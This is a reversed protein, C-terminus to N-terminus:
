PGVRLADAIADRLDAEVFRQKALFGRVGLAEARRRTRDDTRDSLVLVPLDALAAEQRLRAIMSLGDLNPMEIDTLVLDPRDRLAIEAGERGDEALSVRFGMADLMGGLLARAVQSDEAVLVHRRRRKAPAALPARATRDFLRDRLALVDLVLLVGGDPTPAVARVLPADFVLEGAPHAAIPRPSEYGEVTVAFAGAPHDIILAADGVAPERGRLGILSALSVVRLVQEDAGEEDVVIRVFAGESEHTLERIRLISPVSRAPLALKRGGAVVPMAAEVRLTAPMVLVFRTGRGPASEVSVRGGVVAVESAVVDLGVGRGSIETTQDRTTMGHEFLTAFLQQESMETPDRGAAALKARVRDLDIGRGDDEVVVRVTSREQAFSVDIRGREDKGAAVREDSPEIGHDLANRILHVLAATLRREISADLLADGSVRVDVKKGLTQALGRATRHIQGELKSLSVVSARQVVQEVQELMMASTFENADSDALLDTIQRMARTLRRKADPSIDEALATRAFGALAERIRPGILAREGELRRLELVLPSLEDVQVLNTGASGKERAAAAAEQGGRAEAPGSGVLADRAAALARSVEDISAQDADGGSAGFVGFLDFAALLADGTGEPWSERQMAADVVQEAREFVLACAPLGLMHAEGKITHMLRRLPPLSARDGEEAAIWLETAETVREPTLRWFERVLQEPTDAM